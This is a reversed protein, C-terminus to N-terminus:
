ESKNPVGIVGATTLAAGLLWYLEEASLTNDSFYAVAAAAVTAVGSVLGKAYKPLKVSFM